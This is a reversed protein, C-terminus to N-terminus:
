MRKRGKEEGEEETEGQEGVSCPPFYLADMKIWTDSLCGTERNSPLVPSHELENLRTSWEHESATSSLILRVMVNM